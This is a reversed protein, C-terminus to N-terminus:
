ESAACFFLFQRLIANQSKSIEQSRAESDLKSVGGICANRGHMHWTIRQAIFALANRARADGSM